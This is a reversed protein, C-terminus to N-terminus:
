GETSVLSTGSGNTMGALTDMLAQERAYVSAQRALEERVSCLMAHLRNGQAHVIVLRNWEEYSVTEAAPLEQSLKRILVGRRQILGLARVPDQTGADIAQVSINELQEILAVTNSM